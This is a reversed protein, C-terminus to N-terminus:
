PADMNAAEVVRAFPRAGGVILGDVAALYLAIDSVINLPSQDAQIEFPQIVAARDVQRHRDHQVAAVDAIERPEARIGTDQLRGFQKQVRRDVRLALLHGRVDGVAVV